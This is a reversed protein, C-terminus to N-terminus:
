KQIELCIYSHSFNINNKVELKIYGQRTKWDNTVM